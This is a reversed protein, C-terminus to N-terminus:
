PLRQPPEVFLPVRQLLFKSDAIAIKNLLSANTTSCDARCQQFGDNTTEQNPTLLPTLMRGPLGPLRRRELKAPIFCPVVNALNIGECTEKGPFAMSCWYRVAEEIFENGLFWQRDRLNHSGDNTVRNTILILESTTARRCRQRISMQLIVCLQTVPRRQGTRNTVSLVHAVNLTDCGTSETSIRSLM